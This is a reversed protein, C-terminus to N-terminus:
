ENLVGLIKRRYRLRCMKHDISSYSRDMLRAIERYEKDESFIILRQVELSTWKRFRNKALERDQRRKEQLWGPEYGLGYLSIKRSDFRDQNEKLWKCLAYHKILWFSKEYLLVKRIAKLNHNTIWRIITHRDVKLLVAVQNATMFEDARTSAGMNLRKAKLYVAIKTRKLRNSIYVLTFKGWAENLYDIDSTSWRKGRGM